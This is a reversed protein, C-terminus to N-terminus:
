SNKGTELTDILLRYPPDFREIAIDGPVLFGDLYRVELMLNELPGFVRRIGNEPQDELMIGQESLAQGLREGPWYTVQLDFLLWRPDAGGIEDTYAEVIFKEGAQRLVFLVAGFHSLAAVVLTDSENEIEIEFRMSRTRDGFTGTVIQSLSLSRGLSKPTLNLRPAQTATEAITTPQAVCGLLTFAAICIM